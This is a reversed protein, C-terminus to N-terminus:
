HKKDSAYCRQKKFFKYDINDLTKNKSLPSQRTGQLPTQAGTWPDREPAFTQSTTIIESETVPKVVSSETTTPDAAKLISGPAAGREVQRM